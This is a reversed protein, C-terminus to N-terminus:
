VAEMRRLLAGLAENAAIDLGSAAPDQVNDEFLRAAAFIWDVHFAYDYPAAAEGLVPPGVLPPRPTFVARDSGSPRPRRDLPLRDFDLMYVFGNIAAEVLMIPKQAAGPSRHQFSARVRLDAAIRDRLGLRRAATMIGSVLIAAETRPLHFVAPTAPDDALALLQRNWEALALDAFRDFRDRAQPPAPAADLPDDDLLDGLAARYDIASGVTGIPAPADDAMSQLEWYVSSILDQGVQMARLLPGFMQAQACALLARAVGRAERKARALEAALDGTHFYPRLRHAMAAALEHLRGDVQDAKTGPDCVPRLAAALHGIGGDGPSLAADWARAPDAFHTRVAENALYAARRAAVAPAARPAIGTEVADAGDKVAYDMVSGFGIATSRLWFLNDFARGPVWARPWAHSKGFFDLLSAQLRATWRQGSAVDEGAKDEFEGDFKTLVVFLSNRQRARAEPTAGITQGIWADIMNPLTQVDQTSPGVCLLMAAIEQEANYRQFLYAVKGRLFVRGLRGPQALFGDPDAIEERTRAGPFDLLDTHEFFDWPRASLPVTIEAILAAAASRGIVASAGAPSVVRLGGGGPADGLGFVMDADLVSTERPMLADLSCFATDPFGLSALAAILQGAVRTFAATGNWLPAYAEARAGPPLRPIVEAAHAWYAPGLAQLLPHGGFHLDFYERMEEIDDVQLDSSPLGSSPLGSGPPPGAHPAPRAQQRLRDFLAAIAAPEPPRLDRILFDELFANALIKVVDTQSMLRVPVPSGAPAAVGRVTFRSVLGTSEKGGQPNLEQLFNLKRDGYVSVLPEGPRTALSSVLYSKGAQSAGFVAVCMPRGAAVRLRAARRGFRRFDRALVGPDEQLRARNADLWAAAAHAVDAVEAARQPLAARDGAPTGM